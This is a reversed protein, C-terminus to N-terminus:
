GKPPTYTPSKKVAADIEEPTLLVRTKGVVAGSAALAMTASAMSTADPLEAIAFVDDDGFAFYFSELKGGLSEILKRAAAVRVSGGEKLLGKAGEATYSAQLLYKPM